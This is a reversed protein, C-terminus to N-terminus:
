SGQVGLARCVGGALSGNNFGLNKHVIWGILAADISRFSESIAAIHFCTEAENPKGSIVRVGQSQWPHYKVIELKM